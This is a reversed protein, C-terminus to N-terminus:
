LLVKSLFADIPLVACPAIEALTRDSRAPDTAGAPAVIIAGPDAPGARLDGPDVATEEGCIVMRLGRPWRAPFIGSDELVVWPKYTVADVISTRLWAPVVGVLALLRLGWSDLRLAAERLDRLDRRSPVERPYLVLVRRQPGLLGTLVPAVDSAQIPWPPQREGVTGEPARAAADGRCLTCGGCAVAVSRVATAYLSAVLRGPCRDGRLFERMMSLSAASAAATEARKPEVLAAWVSPDLHGEHVIEVDLRPVNSQVTANTDTPTDPVGALHLLGARAMLALTRANWDISREGVLDIDESSAGPAVDLRLGYRPHGHRIVSPHAFMARWRELGREVSIVARRSLSEALEMDGHSPLVLSVAACGDRGARGAEQYFRDFSEPVCAHLIARVHPYDIGLGFASTAVVLDLNGTSWLRLVAEREDAPTEGHVLRVRGFGSHRLAAFWDKADQVRTVYLVAPRPLHLLAERVRVDREARSCPPATWYEIEPRVRAAGVVEVCGGFGFLESLVREAAATLTASLLVVRFRAGPQASFHWARCAGALTQFSTRFGTGWGEVLHAEDVVVARLTGRAAAEALSRRLPGIAAEPAAFCLGQADGDIAARIAANREADGGVYALPQAESGGCSREHDLALAVTPVVVLTTGRARGPPDSAFGIKDIASFVLSKGEGTPLDVVLAAGPPMSLAARVAARQGPSRYSSRGLISLFPDGGVAWGEFFRRREARMATEDAARLSAGQLWAPRWPKAALARGGGGPRFELGAGGVEAHGIERDVFEVESGRVLSSFRLAHRLLVARDLATTTREELAVRLRELPPEGLPPCASGSRLRDALAAIAASGRLVSM